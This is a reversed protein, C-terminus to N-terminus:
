GIGCKAISFHIHIGIRNACHHFVCKHWFAVHSPHGSVGILDWWKHALLDLDKM